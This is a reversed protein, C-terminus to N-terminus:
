KFWKQNTLMLAEQVTIRKAGNYAVVFASNVSAKVQERQDRANKYDGHNGVMFKVMNNHMESIIRDRIGFKRSITQATVASNNFAGVQVRYNITGVANKMSNDTVTETSNEEKPKETSAPTTSPTQAVSEKNEANTPTETPTPVATTLEQASPTNPLTADGLVFKKSQDNALYSFEGKLVVMANSRGTLLYSITVVEKSPLNVWVFKIKGDAVSFSSESTTIAKATYGAPLDDSHKAFGKVNGKNITMEIIHENPTSGPKILRTVTVNGPPEDNLSGSNETQTTETPTAQKTENTAAAVPETTKTEATQSIATTTSANSPNTEPASASASQTEENSVNIEAPLMEVVQKANNEVYSFKGGITKIGNMSGDAKLTFRVLFEDETPLAPWVWKVIGDAYSFNAGKSESETASFGEPLDLQLKAFGGMSGKKVKIEIQSESGPKMNQPFNGTVGIGETKSFLGILFFLM